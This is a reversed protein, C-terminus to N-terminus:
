IYITYIYKKKKGLKAILNHVLYDVMHKEKSPFTGDSYREQMEINGRITIIAVESTSAKYVM